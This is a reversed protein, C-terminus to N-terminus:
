RLRPPLPAWGYRGRRWSREHARDWAALWEQVRDADYADALIMVLARSPRRWSRRDPGRLAASLTSPRLFESADRRVLEAISIEASAWLTRLARRLDAYDRVADPDYETPDLYCRYRADHADEWLRRARSLDVGCGRAYAEVAPWPPVSRGSAARSLRSGSCGVRMGLERYTLGSRQRQRRLWTVLRRLERSDTEVPRELRAM